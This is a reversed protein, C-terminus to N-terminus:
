TDNLSIHMTLDLLPIDRSVMLDHPQDVDALTMKSESKRVASERTKKIGKQAVSQVSWMTLPNVYM